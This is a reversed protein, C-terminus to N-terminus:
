TLLDQPAFTIENRQFRTLTGSLVMDGDDHTALRYSGDRQVEKRMQSTVADTLRPETTQNIFPTVQISKEGAFLGNTPGLRYGACGSGFLLLVPVLPALWFWPGPPTRM